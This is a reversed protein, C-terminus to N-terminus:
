PLSFTKAYPLFYKLYMLSSYDDDSKLNTFTPVFVYDGSLLSLLDNIFNTHKNTM